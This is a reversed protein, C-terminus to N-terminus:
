RGESAAEEPTDLVGFDTTLCVTQGQAGIGLYSGYGGDGAGSYFAVLNMGTAPDVVVEGWASTSVFVAEMKQCLEDWKQQWEKERLSTWIKAALADTFCGVGNDVGYAEPVTALWRIPLEERFRVTACAIWQSQDSLRHALTLILPHTGAPFKMEFPDADMLLVPDGAVIRDTRLVLDAIRKCEIRLDGNWTKLLAGDEFARLLNKSVM